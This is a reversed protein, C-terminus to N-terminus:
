SARGAVALQGLAIVSLGASVGACVGAPWAASSVTAAVCALVACVARSPREAVTIVVPTRRWERYGEVALMGAASGLALWWPAGCRWLVAAFALDSIRDAVKDAVAGFASPRHSVVAVAGDLGDALVSLAVCGAAIWAFGAALVAAAVALLVGAATLVNPSLGIRALPRALAWNM